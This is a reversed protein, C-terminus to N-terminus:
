NIIKFLRLGGKCFSNAKLGLIHEGENRRHKYIRAQFYNNVWVDLCAVVPRSVSSLGMASTWASMRQKPARLLMRHPSLGHIAACIHFGTMRQKCFGRMMSNMEGFRCAVYHVLGADDLPRAHSANDLSTASAPRWDLQTLSM